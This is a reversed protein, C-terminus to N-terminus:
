GRGRRIGLWFAGLLLAGLGLGAPLTMVAASGRATEVMDAGLFVLVVGVAALVSPLCGVAEEGETGEAAKWAWLLVLGLLWMAGIWVAYATEGVGHAAVARHLADTTWLVSLGVGVLFLGVYSSM